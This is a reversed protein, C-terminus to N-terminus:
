KNDKDEIPQTVVDIAKITVLRRDSYRSIYYTTGDQAVVNGELEREKGITNSYIIKDSSNINMNSRIVRGTEKMGFYVIFLIVLVDLLLFVIIALLFKIKDKNQQNNLKNKQSVKKEKVKDAKSITKIKKIVYMQFVQIGKIIFFMICTIILIIIISILLGIKVDKAFTAVVIISIPLYKAFNLLIESKKIKEMLNDSFILFLNIILVGLVILLNIYKENIKNGYKSFLFSIAGALLLSYVLEIAFDLPYKVGVILGKYTILLMTSLVFLCLIFYSNNQLDSFILGRFICNALLFDFFICVIHIIFFWTKDQWRETMMSIFLPIFYAAMAILFTMGVPVVSKFNFPVPNVIMDIISIDNAASGGFYYGYLFSYGCQYFLYGLIAAITTLIIGTSSALNLKKLHISIDVMIHELTIKRSKKKSELGTNIIQLNNYKKNLITKDVEKIDKIFLIIKKDENM